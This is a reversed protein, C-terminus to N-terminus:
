WSPSSLDTVTFVKGKRYHFPSAPGEAQSESTGTVALSPTQTVGVHNTSEIQIAVAPDATGQLRAEVADIEAFDAETLEDFKFSADDNDLM